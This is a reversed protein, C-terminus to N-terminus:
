NSAAFAAILVFTPPDRCAPSYPVGELLYLLILFFFVTSTVFDRVHSGLCLSRSPVFRRPSLIFSLRRCFLTLSTHLPIVFAASLLSAPWTAARKRPSLTQTRPWYRCPFPEDRVPGRRWGSNWVRQGGKHKAEGRVAHEMLGCGRLPARQSQLTESPM